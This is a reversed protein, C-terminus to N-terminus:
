RVAIFPGILLNGEFHDGAHGVEGETLPLSSLNKVRRVAFALSECSLVMWEGAEGEVVGGRHILTEQQKGM